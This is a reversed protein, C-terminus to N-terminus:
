LTAKGPNFVYITGKKRSFGKYYLAPWASVCLPLSVERELLCSILVNLYERGDSVGLLQPCLNLLLSSSTLDINVPAKSVVENTKDSFSLWSSLYDEWLFKAKFKLRTISDRRRM